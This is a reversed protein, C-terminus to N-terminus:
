ATRTRSKTAPPFRARDRAVMSLLAPKDEAKAASYLAKSADQPTAYTKQNAEQACAPILLALMVWALAIPGRELLIEACDITQKSAELM